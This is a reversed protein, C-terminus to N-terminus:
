KEGGMRRLIEKKYFNPREHQFLWEGEGLDLGHDGWVHCIDMMKELLDEHGMGRLEEETM